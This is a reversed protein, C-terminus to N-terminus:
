ICVSNPTGVCRVAYAVRIFTQKQILLVYLAPSYLLVDGRATAITQTVRHPIFINCPSHSFHSVREDLICCYISLTFVYQKILTQIHHYLILNIYASYVCFM